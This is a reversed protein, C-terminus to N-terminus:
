QRKPPPCPRTHESFSHCSAAAGDTGTSAGEMPGAEALFRRALRSRRAVPPRPAGSRQWPGPKGQAPTAEPSPAAGGGAGSTRGVVDDGVMEVAGSTTTARTGAGDRRVVSPVGAAEEWTETPSSSSPPRGCSAVQFLLGCAALLLLPLTALVPREPKM